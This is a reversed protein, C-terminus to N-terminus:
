QSVANETPAQAQTLKPLNHTHFLCRNAQPHSSPMLDIVFSFTDDVAMVSHYLKAGGTVPMGIAPRALLEPLGFLIDGHSVPLDWREDFGILKFSISETSSENRVFQCWLCLCEIFVRQWLPTALVSSRRTLKVKAVARMGGEYSSADRHDGITGGGHRGSGLRQQKRLYGLVYAAVPVFTTGSPFRFREPNADAYAQVAVPFVKLITYTGCVSEGGSVRVVVRTLVPLIACSRGSLLFEVGHPCENSAFVNCRLHTAGAEGGARRLGDALAALDRSM